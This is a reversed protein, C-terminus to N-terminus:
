KSRRILWVESISQRLAAKAIFRRRVYQLNAYCIGHNDMSVSTLGTNIGLGFLCLWLRKQKEEPSLREQGTLSPFNATFDVRLDVEKLIDLLSTM